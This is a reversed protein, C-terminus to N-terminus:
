AAATPRVEQWVDTIGIFFMSRGTLVTADASGILSTGYAAGNSVLLSGSGNNLLVLMQGRFAPKPLAALITGPSATVRATIVPDRTWALQALAAADTAQATNFPLYASNRENGVTFSYDIWSSTNLTDFMVSAPYTDLLVDDLRVIHTGNAGHILKNFGVMSGRATIGAVQLRTEGGAPIWLLGNGGGVTVQNLDFVWGAGFVTSNTFSNGSGAATRVLEVYVNEIILQANEARIGFGTVGRADVNRIVSPRTEKVGYRPSQSYTNMDAEIAIACGHITLGDITCAYTRSNRETYIRVGTTKANVVTVNSARNERGRFSIGSYCDKAMVNDFTTLVGSSHTGFGTGCGDAVSNTILVNNPRGYSQWSTSDAALFGHGDTYGSRCAQAYLGTVELGQSSFNVLAYGLAGVDLGNQAWRVNLNHVTTNFCGVVAVGISTSRKVKVNTVRSGALNVLNMTRAVNGEAIHHDTVDFTGGNWAVEIDQIRGVRIGTTFPDLMSGRVRVTSDVVDYVIFFQGLRGQQSSGNGEDKTGPIVDNSIVKVVDGRKWEPAGSVTLILAPYDRDGETITTEELNSVQMFPDFAGELRVTTFGGDKVFVAGTAEFGLAKGYNQIQESLRYTGPPFVVTSDESAAAITAAIAASDDAVGDGAAGFDRVNFTRGRGEAEARLANALAVGTDSDSAGLLLAMAEDNEVGNVGPLGRPIKFHAHKVEVTGSMVVQANEGAPVSEASASSLTGPVGQDGKAGKDGTIGRDGRDGKAGTDGKDGKAGRISDTIVWAM